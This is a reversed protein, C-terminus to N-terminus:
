LDEEGDGVEINRGKKLQESPVPKGPEDDAVIFDCGQECKKCEYKLVRVIDDHPTKKISNFAEVNEWVRIRQDFILTM